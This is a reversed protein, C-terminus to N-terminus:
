FERIFIHIIRGVSCIGDWCRTFSSDVGTQSEIEMKVGNSHRAHYGDHYMETSYVRFRFEIRDGFFRCTFRIFKLDYGVIIIM